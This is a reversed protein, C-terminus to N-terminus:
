EPLLSKPYIHVTLQEGSRLVGYAHRGVLDKDVIDVSATDMRLAELATALAAVLTDVDRRGQNLGRQYEAQQLKRSAEVMERNHQKWVKRTMTIFKKM